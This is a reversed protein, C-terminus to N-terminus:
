AMDTMNESMWNLLFTAFFLLKSNSLQKTQKNQCFFLFIHAKVNRFSDKWISDKQFSNCNLNKFNYKRLKSILSCM